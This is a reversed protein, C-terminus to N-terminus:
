EHHVELPSNITGIGSTLINKNISIVPIVRLNTTSVEPYPKFDNKMVYVLTDDKSIGTSTYYNTSKPNLFVDGISLVTVKTDIKTNLVEKYNYNTINSYIGNSYKVENIINSYTLTPLYTNKLYYALTGEKTDNHYYGTTSYKYKVDNNNIELYDTLSLKINDGDIDYVRWLDNDLKVYSAFLSNETEIIYPTEKSGNGEILEITNKITIVPKIGLIDTKNSTNVKGDNDVYWIKNDTNENILYFYEGNNMFSNSSGTNAYDNLSPITILIDKTTEKCSINKIDNITDNCTNTYALYKSTNNLNNELVGTYEEKVNNLWINIYSDKYNNVPALSTISNELVLTVTNDKNVRIIRWLLNSYQLYNNTNKGIFYYEKNVEKFSSNNTNNEKIIVGLSKIELLKENEIYLKIFRSGYFITCALIFTLSVINFIKQIDLNLKKKKVEKKNM